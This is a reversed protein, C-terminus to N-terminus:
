EYYSTVVLAGPPAAVVARAYADAAEGGRHSAEASFRWLQAPPLLLTAAAVIPVARPAISALAAAGAAALAFLAALAPLLYGRAHPHAPDFRLLSRGLAGALAVLPLLAGAARARRVLAYAGFLALAAVPLSLNTTVATAVDALREGFPPAQNGLTKQFA